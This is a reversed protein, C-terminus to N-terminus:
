HRIMEDCLFFIIFKEHDLDFSLLDVDFRFPISFLLFANDIIMYSEGFATFTENCTDYSTESQESTRLYVDNEQAKIKSTTSIAFCELFETTVFRQHSDIIHTSENLIESETTPM